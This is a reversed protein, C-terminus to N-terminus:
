NDSKDKNICHEVEEDTFIPRTKFPVVKDVIYGIMALLIIVLCFLMQKVQGLLFVIIGSIACSVALVICFVSVPVLVEACRVFRRCEKNELESQENLRAIRSRVYNENLKM